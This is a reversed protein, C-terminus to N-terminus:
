MPCTFSRPVLFDLVPRGPYATPCNRRAFWEMSYLCMLAGMGLFLSAWVFVSWFRSRGNAFMLGFGAGCFFVFLAPFFFGLSFALIYEHFLSSLLFVCGTALSSSRKGFRLCLERYVYAYLWDHVVTNWTRYWSRFSTVNWWDRYFQRDGFRLMEAFANLWSHLVAFFALLLVLGGPLASQFVTHIFHALSPRRWHSFVPLCYRVLLLHAFLACGAVQGLNSAVYRWRTPRDQPYADRYVLTPAFLFYLFRGFSPCPGGRSASEWVFAHLKMMLRSQETLVIIASAPPLQVALLSRLPLVLFGLQFAIYSALWALRWRRSVPPAAAYHHYAPYAALLVAAHMAMWIAIADPLRGFAWRLLPLSLTDVLSKGDMTDCILTSLGYLSMLAIFVNQLTRFHSLEFLETLLSCRQRFEKEPLDQRAKSAEAAASQKPSDDSSPSPQQVPHSQSDSDNGLIDLLGTLREDLMQMLRQKEQQLQQSRQQLSAHTAPVSTSLMPSL